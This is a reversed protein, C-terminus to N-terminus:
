TSFKKGGPGSAAQEPPTPATAAYVTGGGLVIAMIARCVIRRIFRMVIPFAMSLLSSRKTFGV